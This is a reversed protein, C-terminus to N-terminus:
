CVERHKRESFCVPNAGREEGCEHQHQRTAGRNLWPLASDEGVAGHPRIGIGEALGVAFVEIKGAFGVRSALIDTTTAAAAISAEVTESWRDLYTRPCLVSPMATKM